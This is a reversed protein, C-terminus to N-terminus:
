RSSPLNVNATQCHSARAVFSEIFVEQEVWTSVSAGEMGARRGIAQAVVSWTQRKEFLAAFGSIALISLVAAM